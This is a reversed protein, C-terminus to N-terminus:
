REPEQEIWVIRDVPILKHREDGPDDVPVMGDMDPDGKALGLLYAVEGISQTARVVQGGEVMIRTALAANKEDLM